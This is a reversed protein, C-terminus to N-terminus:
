CGVVARQGEGFRHPDLDLERVVEPWPQYYGQQEPGIWVYWTCHGRTREQLEPLDNVPEDSAYPHVRPMALVPRRCQHAMLSQQNTVLLTGAPAQCAMAVVPDKGPPSAGRNMTAWGTLAGAAVVVAAVGAVVRHRSGVAESVVGTAAVVVLPLATILLRNDPGDLATGMRIVLVAATVVVALALVIGYPGRLTRFGLVLLVVWALTVLMGAVLMPWGDWEPSFWQALVTGARQLVEGPGAASSPREGVAEGSRSNFWVWAAVPLLGSLAVRPLDRWQRRVALVGLTAVVSIVGAYRFLAAVGLLVGVLWGRAASPTAEKRGRRRPPSLVLAWATLTLALFPPESWVASAPLLVVPCLGVLLAACASPLPSREPAGAWVLRASALCAMLLAIGNVVAALQEVPLQTVVQGLALVVSLGPPHISNHRGDMALYGEGALLSRAGSLYNVSDPSIALGRSAFYTHAVLAPVSALLM